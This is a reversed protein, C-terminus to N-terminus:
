KFQPVFLIADAIVFGDAGDNTITVSNGRGTTLNHKGASVWEGSTQGEVKVNTSIVVDRTTKGDSVKLTLKSTAKPIRPCYVYLAYSGPKAISPVFKAAHQRSGIVTDALMSLGYAGQGRMKIWGGDAIVAGKDDNDVLVEALSGDALPDAKLKQQILKVNVQQVPLRKDIAMVAALASSQALVMFVPEM